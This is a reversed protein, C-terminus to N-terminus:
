EGKRDTGTKGVIDSKSIQQIRRKLQVNDNNFNSLEDVIKFYICDNKNTKNILKVISFLIAYTSTQKRVALFSNFSEDRKNQNYYCIQEKNNDAQTGFKALGLDNVHRTKNDSM